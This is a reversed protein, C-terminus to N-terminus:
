RPWADFPAWLVTRVAASDGVIASVVRLGKRQRFREALGRARGGRGRPPPTGDAREGPREVLYKENLRHKVAVLLEAVCVGDRFEQRTALRWHPKWM